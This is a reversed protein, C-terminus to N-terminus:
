PGCIRLASVAPLLNIPRSCNDCAVHWSKVAQFSVMRLTIASECRILAYAYTLAPLCRLLQSTVM